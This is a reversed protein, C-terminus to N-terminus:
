ELPVPLISKLEIRKVSSGLDVGFLLCIGHVAFANLIWSFPLFLPVISSYPYSWLGSVAGAAEMATAMILAGILLSLVYSTPSRFVYYLSLSILFVYVLVAPLNVLDTYGEAWMLAFIIVVTVPVALIAPIAPKQIKMLVTDLLRAVFMIVLFLVSFALYPYLLPMGNSSIYSWLGAASMTTEVVVALIFSSLGLAALDGAPLRIAFWFALGMSGTFILIYLTTAQGAYGGALFGLISGIVLIISMIISDRM